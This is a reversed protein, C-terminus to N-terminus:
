RNLLTRAERAAAREPFRALIEELTAQAETTKGARAQLRALELLANDPPFYSEPSEALERWLTAARERDGAAESARALMAKATDVLRRDNDNRIVDDFAQMAEERRGLRDLTVGRYFSAVEASASSPASRRVEELARLAGELDPQPATGDSSSPLPDLLLLAHGLEEAAKETKSAQWANWAFVLLVVALGAAVAGALMKWNHEIWKEFDWAAELFEDHKLDKRSFRQAM